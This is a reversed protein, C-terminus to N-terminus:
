SSENLIKWAYGSEMEVSTFQCYSLHAAFRVIEEKTPLTLNSINKIETDCLVSAANPALAISPVSYLLAETAAISNFTILCYADDLADWITNTTVREQRIPKLRIEIERNSYTKIQDITSEMWDDLNQNYFKMVKESPPCILIKEGPNPKKYKWHLRDLRDTDRNVIPGPHQLNNKTIRHYSKARSGVPQLYGTDIAYYDRGTDICHSLARQSNGGLGRIALPTKTKKEEKFNSIIGHSGIVFNELIPDFELGKRELNFDGKTPEIAAVKIGM